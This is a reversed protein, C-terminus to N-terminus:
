SLAGIMDLADEVSRIIWVEGGNWNAVFDQQASTLKGKRQKTEALITKGFVGVLLDPVGKDSLQVVTAGCNRLAAIIAAENSDRKAAYRKVSM